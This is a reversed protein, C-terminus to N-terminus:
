LTTSNVNRMQIIAVVTVTLHMLERFTEQFLCIYRHNMEENKGM